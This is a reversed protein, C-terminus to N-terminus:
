NLHTFWHNILSVLLKLSIIKKPGKAIRQWFFNFIWTNVFYLYGLCVCVFRHIPYEPFLKSVKEAFEAFQYIGNTCLYRGSAASTEFLLVQAKAVDKVHVAGLWYHEQTDKSGQLLRQLVAGSANVYPQPFPGLSTAPHIAVVDTGNKEAFEWAAKEALTKSM